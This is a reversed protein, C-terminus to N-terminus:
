QKRPWGRRRQQAQQQQQWRAWPQRLSRRQPGPCQQRGFHRPLQHKLSHQGGELAKNFYLSTSTCDYRLKCTLKTGSNERLGFFKHVLTLACKLASFVCFLNCVQTCVIAYALTNNSGTYTFLISQCGMGMTKQQTSDDQPVCLSGMSTDKIHVFM